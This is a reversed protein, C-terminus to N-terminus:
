KLAETVKRVLDKGLKGEFEPYTKRAVEIFPALDPETVQVGSAKLVELVKTERATRNEILAKRGELSAEILIKQIEPPYSNWHKESLFLTNVLMIHRTIALNKAVEFHKTSHYTILDNEAGDVTGQQLATYLEGFAMPTPSAGLARFLTIFSPSPIVRIKLGKLDALSRIQKRPTYINRFTVEWHHVVHFGAKAAKEILEARVVPGDLFRYADEQTKVLYPLDLSGYEPVFNVLSTSAQITGQIVGSQTNQLAERDSGLQSSPYLNVKIRGGSKEAAVQAFRLGGVQVPHQPDLVHGINLTYQEAALAAIAGLAMGVGLLGHVLGWLVRKTM